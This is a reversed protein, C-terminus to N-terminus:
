SVTLAGVGYESTASTWFSGGALQALFTEVDARMPDNPFFIPVVNPAALVAGGLTEVQPAAPHPGPFGADIKAAAEAEAEQMTGDSPAADASADELASDDGSCACLFIACTSARLWM